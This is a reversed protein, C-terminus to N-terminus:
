SQPGSQSTDDAALKAYGAIDDWHDSVSAKGSLIRSLKLSIMELSERQVPSLNKWGPTTYMLAKFAQSIAANQAFDGHTANRAHLLAITSIEDEVPQPDQYLSGSPFKNYDPVPQATQDYQQQNQDVAGASNDDSM